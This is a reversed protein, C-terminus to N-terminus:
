SGNNLAYEQQGPVTGSTLTAHQPDNCPSIVNISFSIDTKIRRDASPTLEVYIVYSDLYYTIPYFEFTFLRSSADKDFTFGDSGKSPVMTKYKYEVDGCSLDM